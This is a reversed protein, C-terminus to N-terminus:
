VARAGELRSSVLGEKKLVRTTVARQQKQWTCQPREKATTGMKGTLFKAEPHVHDSRM